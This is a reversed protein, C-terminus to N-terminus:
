AGRRWTASRGTSTPAIRGADRLENLALRITQDSVGPLAARIDSIRFESPAHLLVWDRVRQQKTGSQRATEIRGEFREYAEGLRDTLYNAWPWLTHRARHWNRTSAALADYYASRTDYVLQEISVYRGVGYGSQELLHNTLIRAVRGNGDAFPHIVLFDLAFASVLLMPHVLGDAAASQYREVLERLFFETERAAVPRFRVTTAGDPLRDVVLNDATKFRGGGGDVHGFLLRHLHLILGVSVPGAEQRHLYDLADTYGAFEQENRNRFRLQRHAVIGAARQTSVVVGEIASSATISEIRAQEALGRLLEPLQHLYLMEQGSSRDIRRLRVVLPGPVPGFTGEEVFSKM